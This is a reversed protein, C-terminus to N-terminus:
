RELGLARDLSLREPGQVILVILAAAWLGHTPWALPYVFIQIVATMLLLGLAAVRTFLGFFLLIPLAHEALTALVAALRPAILPLAYEYEFLTYTAETITLGEVKTRASLFFVLGIFLQLAFIAPAKPLANLRTNLALILTQM